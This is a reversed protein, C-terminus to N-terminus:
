EGSRELRLLSLLKMFRKVPGVSLDVFPEGSRLPGALRRVDGDNCAKVVLKGPRDGLLLVPYLGREGRVVSVMGGDAVKLSKGVPRDM